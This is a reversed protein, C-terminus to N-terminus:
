NNNKVLFANVWLEDNRGERTDGTIEIEKIVLNTKDILEKFSQSNNNNSILINSDNYKDSQSDIIDYYNNNTKTTNIKGLFNEKIEKFIYEYLSNM